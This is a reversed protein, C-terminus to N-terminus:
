SKKERKHIKLNVDKLATVTKEKGGQTSKFHKNLNKVELTVPRQKIRDFRDKVEPAQDLYSPLNLHKM